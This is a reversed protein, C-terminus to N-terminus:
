EYVSNPPKYYFGGEDNGHFIGEGLYIFPSYISDYSLDWSSYCVLFGNDLLTYNNTRYVRKHKDYDYQSWYFKGRKGHSIGRKELSIQRCILAKLLEESAIKM